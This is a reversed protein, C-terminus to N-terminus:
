YESPLMLVPKGGPGGAVLWLTIGPEPFDTYPIAQITFPDANGDSWKVEATNGNVSLKWVQFPEDQISYFGKGYSAVIDILWYAGVGDALAKVGDTFTLGLPHAFYNETGIYQALQSLDFKPETTTETTSM